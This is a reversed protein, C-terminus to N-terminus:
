YSFRWASTKGNFIKIGENDVFSVSVEVDKEFGEYALTNFIAKRVISRMAARVEIFDQENKFDVTLIM